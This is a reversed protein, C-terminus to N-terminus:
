ESGNSSGTIEDAYLNLRSIIQRATPDDLKLDKLTDFLCEIFLGFHEKTIGRGFHVHSLPQVTGASPGDLAAAFFEYQMSRLRNMPTNTFFTQLQPNALVREYFADVLNRVGPEGGILFFLTQGSTGSAM